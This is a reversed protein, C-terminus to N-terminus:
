LSLSRRLRRRMRSRADGIEIESVRGGSPATPEHRVFVHHTDTDLCLFWRDGNPSGYRLRTESTPMPEGSKRNINCYKGRDGTPRMPWENTIPRSRRWSSVVTLDYTKEALRRAHAALERYDRATDMKPYCRQVSTLRRVRVSAYPNTRRLKRVQASVPAVTGCRAAPIRPM